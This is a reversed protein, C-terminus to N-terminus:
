GEGRQPSPQVEALTFAARKKSSYRFLHNSSYDKDHLCSSRRDELGRDMENGALPSLILRKFGTKKKM